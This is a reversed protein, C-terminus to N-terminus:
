QGAEKSPPDTETSAPRNPINGGMRQKASAALEAMIEGTVADGHNSRVEAEARQRVFRRVFSPIRELWAEAEPTWHLTDASTDLPEITAEGQPEYACLFDEGMLDGDRALPRARCGGCLKSFECAGCRGTLKPARLAQFQPADRWIQAFSQQRISGAEDEIYPCATVGGTPTVRCYRSGALCGGAEYGHAATIPWDPDLQWAMRKFHPACKARIMIETENRAAATLRRMVQEYTQASINTVKEGRGTCVLFFVNVVFAGVDKAFTIMDELEHANDDTVSFHIQFRLDTRRCTDFAAMAKAWSGPLGRFEDHAGPDLSDLSIGVGQLGAAKLDAARRDNLGLGNSGLVAMLGLGTAHGVLEVLDGRLLPEGGTFVVMTEDSLAAIDDLLGCVEATSLEGSADSNRSDADLYCHACNLNCRRTLNLAVLFPPDATDTTDTNM